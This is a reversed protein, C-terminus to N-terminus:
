NALWGRSFNLNMRESKPFKGNALEQNKQSTSRILNGDRNTRRANQDIIWDFLGMEIAHNKGKERESEEM